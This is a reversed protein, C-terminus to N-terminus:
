RLVNIMQQTISTMMNIQRIMSMSNTTANVIKINQIPISDARNQILTFNDTQKVITDGIVQQSGIQASAPNITVPLSASTTDSNTLNATLANIAQLMGNVLVASTIGFSIQLGGDTVFGGRMTDLECNAVVNYGALKYQGALTPYSGGFVIGMSLVVVIVRKRLLKRM